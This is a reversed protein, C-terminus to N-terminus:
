VFKPRACSIADRVYKLLWLWWMWEKITQRVKENSSLWERWGHSPEVTEHFMYCYRRFLLKQGAAAALLQKNATSLSATRCSGPAVYESAFVCEWDMSYSWCQRPRVSEAELTLPRYDEVASSCVIAASQMSLSKCYCIRSSRAIWSPQRHSMTRKIVYQGNYLTGCKFQTKAPPPTVTARYCRIHIVYLPVFFSSNYSTPQYWTATLLCLLEM